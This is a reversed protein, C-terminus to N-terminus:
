PLQDISLALGSKPLWRVSVRDGLQLVGRAMITVTVAEEGNELTVQYGSGTEGYASYRPSLFPNGRRIETITGETTVADGPGQGILGLGGSQTLTLVLVVALVLLVLLMATLQRSAFVERLGRRALPMVVLVALFVLGVVPLLLNNFLYDSYSFTM